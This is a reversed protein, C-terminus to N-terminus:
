FTNLSPKRDNVPQMDIQSEKVKDTKQQSNQANLFSKIFEYAIWSLASGPAAVAIRAMCGRFFPAVTSNPNMSKIKQIAESFGGVYKFNPKCDERPCPSCTSNTTISEQTNLVTKVVDLPTTVFAAVGGAMGGCVANIMPSYTNEPNLFAKLSDYLGFQIAAFPVNMSLQTPFSLYFAQVGETRYIQSVIHGYSQNFYPSNKMQLRQKVVECPNMWIDHFFAGCAGGLNSAFPINKAELKAKTSEFCVFQLAHAPGCGAAIALGGRRLPKFGEARYVNKIEVFPNITQPACGVRLSQMRTKVVDIPYVCIHEFYGATAGAAANMWLPHTSGLSEYEVEDGM